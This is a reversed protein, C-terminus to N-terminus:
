GRQRAPAVRWQVVIGGEGGETPKTCCLTPKREASNSCGRHQYPHLVLLSGRWCKEGEGEGEGERLMPLGLVSCWFLQGPNLHRGDVAIKTVRSATASPAASAITNTNTRRHWNGRVAWVMTHFGTCLNLMVDLTSMASGSGSGSGGDVGGVGGGVAGVGGIDFGIDIRSDVTKSGKGSTTEQNGPADGIMTLMPKCHRLMVDRMRVRDLTVMECDHRMYQRVVVMAARTALSLSLSYSHSHQSAARETSSESAEARDGAQGNRPKATTTRITASESQMVWTRVVFRAGQRLCVVLLCGLLLLLAALPGTTPLGWRALVCGTLILTLLLPSDVLLALSTNPLWVLLDLLCHSFKQGSGGIVMDHEKFKHLDHLIFDAFDQKYSGICKDMETDVGADVHKEIEEARADRGASPTAPRGQPLLGHRHWDWQHQGFTEFMEVRTSQIKACLRGFKGADISGRALLIGLCLLRHVARDVCAALFNYKSSDKYGDATAAFPSVETAGQYAAEGLWFTESTFEHREHVVANTVQVQTAAAAITTTTAAGAPLSPALTKGATLNAPFAACLLYEVVTDVPIVNLRLRDPNPLVHVLGSGLLAYFGAIAAFSDVYGVSPYQLAPGIISPRVIHLPLNHKEAWAQITHEAMNKTYTYTNFHGNHEGRRWAEVSGPAETLTEPVTQRHTGVYATSTHVWSVLHPCETAFRAVQM